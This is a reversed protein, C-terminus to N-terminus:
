WCENMVVVVKSINTDENLLCHLGDALFSELGLLLGVHLNYIQSNPSFNPGAITKSNFLTGNVFVLTFYLRKCVSKLNYLSRGNVFHM